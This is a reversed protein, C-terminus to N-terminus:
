LLTTFVPSVCHKMADRTAALNVQQNRILPHIKTQCISILHEGAPVNLLSLQSDIAVWGNIVVINTIQGSCNTTKREGV